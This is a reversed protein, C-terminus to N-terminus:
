VNTMNINDEFEMGLNTVKSLIEVFEKIWKKTRFVCSV